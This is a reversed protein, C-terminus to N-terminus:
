APLLTSFIRIFVFCLGYVYGFVSAYIVRGFITTIQIEGNMGNTNVIDSIRQMKEPVQEPVKAIRTGARFMSRGPRDINCIISGVIVRVQVAASQLPRDPFHVQGFDSIHMNTRLAPFFM